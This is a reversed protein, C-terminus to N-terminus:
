IMAVTKSTSSAPTGPSFWRGNVATSEFFLLLFLIFFVQLCMEAYFLVLRM